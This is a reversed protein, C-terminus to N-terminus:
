GNKVIMSNNLTIEKESAIVIESSEDICLLKKVSEEFTSRYSGDIVAQIADTDGNEVDLFLLPYCNEVLQKIVHKWHKVEQLPADLTADPVAHFVYSYKNGFVKDFCYKVLREHFENSVVIIEQYSFITMEKLVKLYCFLANGFTTASEEEKLIASESVGNDILYKKMAEAETTHECRMPVICSPPFKGCVLFTDADRYISIAEDLRSKLIPKVLGDQTLSFGLIIILRNSM